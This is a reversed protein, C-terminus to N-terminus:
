LIENMFANILCIPANEIDCELLIFKDDQEIVDWEDFIQTNKKWENLEIYQRLADCGNQEMNNFANKILMVFDVCNLPNIFYREIFVINDLKKFVIINDTEENEFTFLNTDM